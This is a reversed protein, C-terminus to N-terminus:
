TLAKEKKSDGSIQGRLIASETQQLSDMIVEVIQKPLELYTQKPLDLRYGNLTVSLKLKPDENERRPVFVRYREQKLLTRKMIEAKSGPQPDSAPSGPVTQKRYQYQRLYDEDEGAKSVKESPPELRPENSPSSPLKADDPNSMANRADALVQQLEEDSMSEDYELGDFEEKISALEELVEDRDLEEVPVPGSPKKSPKKPM